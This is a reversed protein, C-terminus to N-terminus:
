QEALALAGKIAIHPDSVLYIPINVLFPEIWPAHDPTGRRLFAKKFDTKGAWYEALALSVSGTLYIGGAAKYSLAVNSLASATLCAMYDLITHAAERDEDTGETAFELLVAGHPRGAKDARELAGGLKPAHIKDYLFELWNQVGYKGSLALEWSPDTYKSFLFQLFNNQIDNYPQFGSHGVECDLLTYGGTSRNYAAIGVGFGTSITVAAKNGKAIAVGEKLLLFSDTHASAIGAATANMDNYTEFTTGPYRQGAEAPDFVPWPSNTMKVAGTNEDRPGAMALAIRAPRAQVQEFYDELLAYLDPFDSTAYHRVNGSYTDLIHVKTGGVDMGTVLSQDIPLNAPM